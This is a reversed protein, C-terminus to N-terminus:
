RKEEHRSRHFAGAPRMALVLEGVTAVPRGTLLEIRGSCFANSGVVRRLEVAHRLTDGPFAPGHLRVGRVAALVLTGDTPQGGQQRTALWLVGAAQVFSELLLAPPYRYAAASAGDPLGAYCPECGSIAKLALASAGPRCEPVRDVLLIPHRHPLLGTLEGHDLM